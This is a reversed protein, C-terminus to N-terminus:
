APQTILLLSLIPQPLDRDELRIMMWILYNDRLFLEEKDAALCSGSSLFPSEGIKIRILVNLEVAMLILFKLIHVSCSERV